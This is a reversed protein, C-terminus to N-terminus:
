SAQSRQRFEAPTNGHWRKFARTFASQESFGTLFTIETLSIQTDRLLNFALTRRVQDCLDRYNSGDDRLRRHLTRESMGLQSALDGAKPVGDTLSSSILNLVKETLTPEQYSTTTERELHQILFQSLAADGLHNTQDLTREDFLLGNVEANFLLECEFFDELICVDPPPAHTFLARKPVVTGTSVQRALAVSLALGAEPTLITGLGEGALMEQRLLVQEGDAELHYLLSEALVNMYRAQRQLSGRLTPAAKFALGLTGLDNIDVSTAYGVVVKARSTTNRVIWSLVDYHSEASIRDKQLLVKLATKGDVILEGQNNLEYGAAKALMRAAIISVTHM